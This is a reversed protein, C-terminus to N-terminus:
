EWLGRGLLHIVPGMERLEWRRAKKTAILLATDSRVSESLFCIHENFPVVYRKATNPINEQWTGM